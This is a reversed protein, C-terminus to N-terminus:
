HGDYSRGQVLEAMVPAIAAPTDEGWQDSTIRALPRGQADLKIFTPVAKVGYYAALAQCSDVNIELLTARQLAADVLPEALAAKFRRCPGCWDAYFHAVPVRGAAVARPLFQKFAQQDDAQQYEVVAAQRTAAPGTCATLLASAAPWLLAAFVILYAVPRLM